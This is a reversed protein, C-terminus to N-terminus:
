AQLVILMVHLMNSAANHLHQAAVASALLWMQMAAVDAYWVSHLQYCRSFAHVQALGTSYSIFCAHHLWDVLGVAAATAGLRLKV